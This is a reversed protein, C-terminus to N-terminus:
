GGLLQGRALFELSLLAVQRGERLKGALPRHVIHLAVAQGGLALAFFAALAHAQM